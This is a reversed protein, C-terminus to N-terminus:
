RGGGGATVTAPDIVAGTAPLRGLDIGELGLARGLRRRREVVELPEEPEGLRRLLSVWFSADEEVGEPAALATWFAQVRGQRNVFLGEKEAWTSTPVTFAAARSTENEHTGAYVVRRCTALAKAVAPDAAPDGGYIVITKERAADIRAALEAAPLETLGLWRLGARNPTRDGSLLLDDGEGRDADTLGGLPAPAGLREMVRAFLYMEELSVHPSAVALGVEGPRFWELARQRLADRTLPSKLRTEAQVIKYTKRGLDCMWERNVEDNRRPKVRWLRGANHDLRVNCGTACGPCISRTGKLRWVRQRFRFDRSTLAGVPCIDVTNLSYNNDLQRGPAVGIEARDGRQFIGLERTGTVEYVFRVCRSCLVCREQDLIVEPGIVQAKCKHVKDAKEVESEYLGYKMYQDQLGCEGAQDCIPCD